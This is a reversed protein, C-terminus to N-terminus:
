DSTAEEVINGPTLTVDTVTGALAEDYPRSVRIYNDTWGLM